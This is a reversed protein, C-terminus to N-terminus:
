IDDLHAAFWASNKEVSFLLLSLTLAVHIFLALLPPSFIPAMVVPALGAVPLVTIFTRIYQSWGTEFIFTLGWIAGGLSCALMPVIKYRLSTLSHNQKLEAISAVLTTLALCSVLALLWFTFTLPGNPFFFFGDDEGILSSFSLIGFPIAAGLFAIVRLITLMWLSTYFCRAGCAAVLPLLSGSHSFYDLVKRHAKIALWLATIILGSINLIIVFTLTVSKLPAANQFGSLLLYREGTAEELQAKSQLAQLYGERMEENLDIGGLLALAFFSRIDLRTKEKEKWIVLDTACGACIHIQNFSGNFIKQYDIIPTKALLNPDLVIDYRELKCNPDIPVPIGDPTESRWYCLTANKNITGGLLSKRIWSGKGKASMTTIATKTKTRDLSKIFVSSVGVQLGVIVFSFLIPVLFLTIFLRPIRILSLTLHLPSIQKQKSTM